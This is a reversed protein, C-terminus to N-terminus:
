EKPERFKALTAPLQQQAETIAKCHVEKIAYDGGQWNSRSEVRDFDNWMADCAANLREVDAILAKVRPDSMIQETTPPIDARRYLRKTKTDPEQEAWEGFRWDVIEYIDPTAWITEPAESM